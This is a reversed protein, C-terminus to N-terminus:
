PTTATTETSGTTASTTGGAETTDTPEPTTVTTEGGAPTTGETTPPPSTGDGTNPPVVPNSEEDTDPTSDSTTDAPPITEEDPVINLEQTGDETTIEVTDEDVLKMAPEEVPTGAPPPKVEFDPEVVKPQNYVDTFTATGDAQYNFELKLNLNFMLLLGDVAMQLDTPAPMAPLIQQQTGDEYVVKPTKGTLTLGAKSGKPALEIFPSFMAAILKGKNPLIVAGHKKVKIKDKGSKGKVAKFLLGLDKPAPLCIIKLGTSTVLIYNGAEDETMGPPTGEAAKEVDGPILALEVSEEDSTDKVTLIGDDQSIELEPLDEALQNIVSPVEENEILLPKTLDPIETLEIDEESVDAEDSLNIEAPPMEVKGTEEDVTVEVPEPQTCDDVLCNVVPQCAPDDPNTECDVVPQCTPDDPNTECNVAPPTIEPPSVEPYLPGFIFQPMKVRQEPTFAAKKEPPMVSLQVVNFGAVSDVSLLPIQMTTFANAAEVSLKAIQDKTLGGVAAVPLNMIVVPNIYIMVTPALRGVQQANLNEAVEPSLSKAAEETMDIQSTTPNVSWGPPTFKGAAEGKGVVLSLFINVKVPAPLKEVLKEPIKDAIKTVQEPPLKEVDLEEVDDDTLTVDELNFTDALEPDGEAAIEVVAKKPLKKVKDKPIKKLYKKGEGDKSLNILTDSNLSACQQDTLSEMFSLDFLLIQKVSFFMVVEISLGEVAKKDLKFKKSGGVEILEWGILGKLDELSLTNIDLSLLWKIKAIGELKDPNLDDKANGLEEEDFGALLDSREALLKKVFDKDDLDLWPVFAVPILQWLDFDQKIKFKIQVEGSQKIKIKAEWSDPLFAKYFEKLDKELEKSLGGYIKVFKKILKEHDIRLFLKIKLNDDLEGFFEMLEDVSLDKASELLVEVDGSDDKEGEEDDGEEGGGIEDTKTTVKVLKPDILCPGITDGHKLHAPLASLSIEITGSKDENEDEGDDDGEEDDDGDDGDEDERDGGRLEKGGPVHCVLVKKGDSFLALKQKDTMEVLQEETFAKKGDESLEALQEESIAIVVKISIAQIQDISLGTFAEAPILAIQEATLSQIQEITIEVITEATLKTLEEDTLGNPTPPLATKICDTPIPASNEPIMECNTVKCRDDTPNTTCDIKCKPDDPTAECDVPPKCSPDDPTAKCDVEKATCSPDEPTVTCDVEKATCSPDDPTAKCDVSPTSSTKCSPDEPTAKCDVPPTSATKCSPDNPTAKCDVSPTSSTQCSPDDPTAKCDVPPTSSTQCSPDEPTAKCDVPPTSATKCSPDDPTAKCDVQPKCSPDEPTVTCDVKPTSSPQCNPDISSDCTSQAYVASNGVVLSLLAAQMTLTLPKKKM